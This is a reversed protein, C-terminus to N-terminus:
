LSELERLITAFSPRLHPEQAWCLEMLSMILAPTNPPTSSISPRKGGTVYQTIRMSHFGAWPKSTYVLEWLIIGFSYVDAQESYPADEFIEPATWAVNGCQTMTQNEAKLRSFGFDAVKVRWNYNVLMNCSKIDRHLIGKSHLYVMGSVIDRIMQKRIDWSVPTVGPGYLVKSLSGKDMFETVICIHPEKLCVGKFRLVNEHLLAYLLASEARLDITDVDSLKQKVLEKVAVKEGRLIAARAEGLTGAGIKEALQLEEYNIVWKNTSPPFDFKRSQEASDGPTPDGPSLTSPNQTAKTDMRDRLAEPVIEYVDIKESDKRLVVPGLSQISFPDVSKVFQMTKSYVAPDIMIRGPGVLAAMLAARTVGPGTYDMTRTEANKELEPNAIHIGMKFCLGKRLVVGRSTREEKTFPYALIAESWDVKLLANQVRLCFNIAQLTDAFAIMFAEGNCKVEYGRHKLIYSRIVECAQTLANKMERPDYEWLEAANALFTNVFTVTGTPPAAKEVYNFLTTSSGVEFDPDYYIGDVLARAEKVSFRQDPVPAWCKNLLEIISKDWMGDIPPREGNVVKPAIAAVTAGSFPIKRSM